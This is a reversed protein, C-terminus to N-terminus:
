TDLPQQLLRPPELANRQAQHQRQEFADGHHVEVAEHQGPFALEELKAFLLDEVEHGGLGFLGGAGDTRRRIM